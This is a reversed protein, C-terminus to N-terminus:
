VLVYYRSRGAGETRILDSEILYLFDKKRAPLSRKSIAGLERQTITGHQELYTLIVHHHSELRRPSRELSQEVRKLEDLIGEAFYELWPTFDTGGKLDYYDGREGVEQFYRSVNRNYYAEFSFIPSMDLGALGLIATSMLRTSRGNGDMFPHVIVAQKHFLGALIVPEMEDLHASVFAMLEGTLAPVDGYDPPIFVVVNPQRPDRIVVPRERLHGIDAPNDMLVDVVLGQVQAFTNSTLAFDGRDVAAQVWESARNYNLVERETDRIQAPTSKLLRKVDTLPLPNGEISTSAHASLSRAELVLRQLRPGRLGKARITGLAEGIERLRRLLRHSLEYKPDFMSGFLLWNLAM